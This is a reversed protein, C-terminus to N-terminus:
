PPTSTSAASAPAVAGASALEGLEEDAVVVVVDLVGELVDVVGDVVVVVGLLEPPAPRPPVVVWFGLCM